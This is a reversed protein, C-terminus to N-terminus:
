QNRQLNDNPRNTFLWSTPSPMMVDSVFTRSRIQKKLKDVHATNPIFKSFKAANLSILTKM